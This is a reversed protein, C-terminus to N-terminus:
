QSPLITLVLKGRICTLDADNIIKGLGRQGLTLLNRNSQKFVWNLNEIALSAKLTTGFGVVDGDLGLLGVQGRM